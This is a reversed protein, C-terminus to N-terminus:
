YFSSDKFRDKLAEAHGKHEEAMQSHMEHRPMDGAEKAMKAAVKHAGAADKHAREVERMSFAGSHDWARQSAESHDKPPEGPEQNIEEGGLDDAYEDGDPEGEMSTEADSRMGCALAVLEAYTYSM